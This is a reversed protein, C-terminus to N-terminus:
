VFYPSQGTAMPAGQLTTVIVTVRKVIMDLAFRDLTGLVIDFLVPIFSGPGLSLM